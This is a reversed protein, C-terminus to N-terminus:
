LEGPRAQGPAAPSLNGTLTWEIAGKAGAAPQTTVNCATIGAPLPAGCNASLFTTYAPTADRLVIASVPTSGNNQYTITYTIAEGLKVTLKDISKILALGVSGVQTTDTLTLTSSLAPSANTYSFSAGITIGDQTNM